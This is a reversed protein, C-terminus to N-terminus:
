RAPQSPADQYREKVLAKFYSEVMPTEAKLKVARGIDSQAQALAEARLDEVVQPPLGAIIVDLDPLPAESKPAESTELAVTAELRRQSAYGPPNLNWEERIAKTLFGAQNRLARPAVSIMYRFVDIQRTIFDVPKLKLLEQAVSISIGFTRLDAVVAASPDAPPEPAKELRPPFDYTVRWGEPTKTYRVDKLFGLALLETHAGELTRKITAPRKTTTQTLGLNTSALTQLAVHHSSRRYQHKDLYRFLRKSLPTKLAYYFTLDIPKIYGAALSQFFEDGFRVWSLHDRDPCQTIEYADIISFGKHSIWQQRDKRWFAERTSIITGAYREISAAIRDMSWGNKKWGVVNAIQSRSFYVKSSTFGQDSGLKLLAILVDQDASLPLGKSDSGSVEWIQEVRRGNPLSITRSVALTRQNANVPSLLAVPFEAINLEDRGM